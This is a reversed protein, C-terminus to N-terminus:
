IFRKSRGSSFDSGARDRYDAPTRGFSNKPLLDVDHRLIIVKQKIPNELYEELTQFYFGATQLSKILSIYKEITFDM